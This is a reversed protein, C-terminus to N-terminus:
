HCAGQRQFLDRYIAVVKEAMVKSSFHNVAKLHAAAGLRKALTNDIILRDCADALAHENGPEVLIGTQEHDLVEPIGGVRSAVIPRSASMAELLALPIGENLSPLVFIDMAQLLARPNDRHGAFIVRDGIGLRLTLAELNKRLPGDGILLLKMTERHEMLRAGAKIFFEHGKVATLRGVSGIVYDTEKVGLGSRIERIDVSTGSHNHSIGNHICLVKNAGYYGALRNELGRSVAIIEDVLFKNCFQNPLEHLLMRLYQMGSFPEPLGHVTRVVLSRRSILGALIALVNDKPKHTHLIDFPHNLFIHRIQLLSAWNSLNTEPVVHVRMSFKQLEEVLRGENLLIASLELDSESILWRIVECLYAEAGGWVDGVAVHCVKITRPRM